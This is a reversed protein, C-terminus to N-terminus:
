IINRVCQLASESDLRTAATLSSTRSQCFDSSFKGVAHACVLFYHAYCLLCVKEIVYYINEQWKVDVVISEAGFRLSIRLGYVSSLVFTLDKSDM